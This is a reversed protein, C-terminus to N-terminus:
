PIKFLYVSGSRTGLDDDGLAGVVISDRDIDMGLGFLADSIGDPATLKYSESWSNGSRQFLYASGSDQGMDDDGSAGVVINNGSIAVASGFYDYEARDSATLIATEMWGAGTKQYVYSTGFGPNVEFFDVGNAGIVVVDNDIAVATGFSDGSIGNSATLKAVEYWGSGGQQFIYASGSFAGLDDDSRAGVVVTNNSIAVATGFRDGSETDTGVLKAQEVWANGQRRFLYVADNQSGVVIQRGSIAVSTGFFGNSSGDSATLKAQQHWVTGTRKFIYVAGARSGLDDDGVAGLVLTDNSMDVAFGGILDGAEGGSPMLQAVETWTTGNRWYLYTTGPNESGFDKDRAGVLLFNGHIAVASGYRGDEHGNSATLKTQPTLTLAYVATAVFGLLLFTAVLYKFHKM